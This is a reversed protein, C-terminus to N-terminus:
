QEGALLNIYFFFAVAEPISQMGASKPTKKSKIPNIHLKCIPSGHYLDKLTLSGLVTVM